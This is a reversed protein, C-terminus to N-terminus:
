RLAGPARREGNECAADLEQAPRERRGSGTPPVPWFASGARPATGDLVRELCVPGLRLGDRLRVPYLLNIVM